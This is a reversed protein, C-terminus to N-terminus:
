EWIEEEALRKRLELEEKKLDNAHPNNAWEKKDRNNLYYQIAQVNSPSYKQLTATKIVDEESILRGEDDYKKVKCKYAVDEWYPYGTCNKFLENKVIEVSKTRARTLTDKLEEYKNLYQYFANKGINLNKYIENDQLGNCAWEYIEDLRPEVHTYWKSKAM